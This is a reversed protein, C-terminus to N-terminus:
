KLFFDTLKCGLGQLVSFSLASLFDFHFCLCNTAKMMKRTRFALIIIDGKFMKLNQTEGERTRGEWGRM